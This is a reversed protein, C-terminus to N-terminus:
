GSRRPSRVRARATQPTTDFPELYRRLLAKTEEVVARADAPRRAALILATSFVEVVMTAVIPRKRAPVGPLKAALLQEIRTAAERNVAEGESLVEPTVHLGVWVARFGPDAEHFAVFADIAADLLETWPRDVLPGSMTADFFLRVRGVSRAALAQYLAPKNPFFQYVSGISTDARAAIAEMTAADYGRTAIELAAADLIREVRQKSREQSPVRRPEKVFM